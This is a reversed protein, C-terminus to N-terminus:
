ECIQKMVRRVIENILKNIKNKRSEKLQKWYIDHYKSDKLKRITQDIDNQVFKLQIPGKTPMYYKQYDPDANIKDMLEDYVNMRQQKDSLDVARNLRDNNIGSDLINLLNRLTIKRRTPITITEGNEDTITTNFSMNPDNLVTELLARIKNYFMSKNNDFISNDGALDVETDVSDDTDLDGVSSMDSTDSLEGSTPLPKTSSVVGWKIAYEKYRAWCYHQSYVMIEKTLEKMFGTPGEQGGRNVVAAMNAGVFGDQINKDESSPLGAFFSSLVDRYLELSDVMADVRLSPLTKSRKGVDASTNGFGKKVAYQCRNDDLLIELLNNYQRTQKIDRKPMEGRNMKQIMDLFIQIAKEASMRSKDKSPKPKPQNNEDDINPNYVGDVTYPVANADDDYQSNVSMTNDLSDDDNYEDSNDENFGFSEKIATKILNRIDKETLNVVQKMNKSENLNKNNMIHQIYKTLNNFRATFSYPNIGVFKEGYKKSNEKQSILTEFFKFYAARKVENRPLFDNTIFKISQWDKSNIITNELNNFNSSDTPNYNEIAWILSDVMIVDLNSSLKTKIKNLLEILQDISHSKNKFANNYEVFGNSQEFDNGRWDVDPLSMLNRFKYFVLNKFQLELFNIFIKSLKIPNACINDYNNNINIKNHSFCYAIEHTIGHQKLKRNITKNGGLKFANITGGLIYDHFIDESTFPVTDIKCVKEWHKIQSVIFPLIRPAIYNIIEDLYKKSKTGLDKLQLDYTGSEEICANYYYILLNGLREDPKNMPKDYTLYIENIM